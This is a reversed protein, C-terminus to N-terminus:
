KGAIIIKVDNALEILLTHNDLMTGMKQCINECIYWSVAAVVRTGKPLNRLSIEDRLLQEFHLAKGPGTPNLGGGIFDAGEQKSYRWLDLIGEASKNAEGQSFFDNAGIITRTEGDISYQAKGVVVHPEGEIRRVTAKWLQHAEPRLEDALLRSNAITESSGTAAAGESEEASNQNLGANEEFLLGTPDVANVPNDATYVYRCITCGWIQTWTSARM